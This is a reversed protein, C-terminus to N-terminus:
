MHNEVNNYMTDIHNALNQFAAYCAIAILSAVLGYEITNVGRECRLLKTLWRM